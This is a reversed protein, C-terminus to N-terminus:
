VSDEILKERIPELIARQQGSSFGPQDALWDFFQGLLEVPDTESRLPSSNHPPDGSYPPPYQLPQNMQRLQTILLTSVLNNVTSSSADEKAPTQEKHSKRDREKWNVLNVIINQSPQDITSEGRLLEKNWRQFNEASVPYHHIAQDPSNPSKKNQWCTKGKNRCHVNTCPWRDAIAPIRNGSAEEAALVEPLNALQAQTATRRGGSRDSSRQSPTATSATIEVEKEEVLYLTFNLSLSRLPWRQHWEKILNLAQNLDDCTRIEQPCCDAIRAKEHSAVAQFQSVTFKRPLLNSLTQDRWAELQFLFLDNVNFLASKTGPLTEKGGAAVAKWVSTFRALPPTTSGADEDEVEEEIDEDEEEVLVPEAHQASPSPAPSM